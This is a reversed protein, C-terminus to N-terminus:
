FIFYGSIGDSYINIAGHESNILVSTGGDITNTNNSGTITISNTGANGGEDKVVWAQGDNVASAAPLTITVAGGVTTVGIFYDSTTLTYDTGKKVRKHQMGGSVHIKTGDYTLTSEGNLADSSSFTAIRNDSGNAVASVTGGSTLDTESLENSRWYVKGDAKTYLLGGDGNSPASPTSGQESSIHVIGSVELAQDPDTVGIGVNGQSTIVMRTAVAGAEAKTYFYIDGGSDDSANSDSTVTQAQISAICKSDADFNTNDGNAQNQFQIAGMPAGNSNSLSGLELISREVAGYVTLKRSTTQAGSNIATTKGIAVNGEVILGSDSAANNVAYNAGVAMAGSVAFAGQPTSTGIGVRDNGSDVFLMHTKNDSEVRFDNTAHGDENFVAGVASIRLVEDNTNGIITTFATEGKNIYLTNASADLFVAEDEGVSEVRFDFNGQGSENFVAGGGDNGYLTLLDRNTGGRLASLTIKGDEGGATKDVVEGLISAYNKTANSANKATWFLTGIDDGDAVGSTSKYFHMFSGDEDANANEIVLQPKETTTSYVHLAYQPELAADGSGTSAVLLKGTTMLSGTFQHRDTSSDGFKSDGSASLFTVTTNIINYNDAQITGSVQLSGTLRLTGGEDTINDTTQYILNHSGSVTTEGTRFQIAQDPGGSATLASGVIHAWGFSSM